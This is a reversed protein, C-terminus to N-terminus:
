LPDASCHEKLLRLLLIQKGQGKWKRSTAWMEQSLATSEAETAVDEENARVRRRILIM